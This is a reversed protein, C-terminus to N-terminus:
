KYHEIDVFICCITIRVKPSTVPLIRTATEFLQACRFGDGSDADARLGNGCPSIPIYAKNKYRETEM